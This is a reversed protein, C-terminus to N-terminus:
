IDYTMRKYFDIEVFQNQFKLVVMSMLSKGEM